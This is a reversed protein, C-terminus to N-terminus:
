EYKIQYFNIPMSVELEKGDQTPAFQIMRLQDLLCAHFSADKFASEEIKSKIVKGISDITFSVKVEGKEEAHRGKYSESELFCSRFEDHKLEIPTEIPHYKTKKSTCAVLLLLFSIAKM